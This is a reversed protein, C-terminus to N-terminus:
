LQGPVDCFGLLFVGGRCRTRDPSRRLGVRAAAAPRGAQSSAAARIRVTVFAALMGTLCLCAVLFGSYTTLDVRGPDWYPAFVLYFPNSLKLWEWSTSGILGPPPIGSSLAAMYAMAPNIVWLILILYTVMLVDNTKRGWLSFVMALSSGLVACGTAVLFSGVIAIPDVGGLLAVLAMIPLVGAVLGLVPVLGVGLKGLVIEGNSLDTALMHDLTGRARALCVAGATAAPAALLVLTLEISAITEFLSEGLYAMMQVSVTQDPRRNWFTNPWALSMAVLIVTLFGARLAYLQWRRTALLWEYVFVPGPGLRLRV